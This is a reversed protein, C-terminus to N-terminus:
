NMYPDLLNNIKDLAATYDEMTTDKKVFNSFIKNFTDSDFQMKIGDVDFIKTNKQM